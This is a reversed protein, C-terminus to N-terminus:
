SLLVGANRRLQYDKDQCEWEEWHGRCGQTWGLFDVTGHVTKKEGRRKKM